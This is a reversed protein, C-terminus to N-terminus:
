FRSRRVISGTASIVPCQKTTPSQSMLQTGPASPTSAEVNAHFKYRPMDTKKRCVAPEAEPSGGRFLHYTLCVVGRIVRIVVFAVLALFMNMRCTIRCTSILRTYCPVRPSHLSNLAPNRCPIGANGTDREKSPSTPIGVETSSDWGQRPSPLSSAEIGPLRPLTACHWATHGYSGYSGYSEAPQRTLRPQFCAGVMKQNSGAHLESSSVPMDWKKKPTAGRPTGRPTRLGPIVVPNFSAIRPHCCSQLLCDKFKKRPIGQRPSRHRAPAAPPASPTSGNPSGHRPKLAPCARGPELAPCTARLKTAINRRCSDVMSCNQILNHPSNM